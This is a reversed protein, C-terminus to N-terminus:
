RARVKYVKMTKGKRPGKKITVRVPKYRPNGKKKAGKGREWPEKSRWRSHGAADQKRGRRTKESM